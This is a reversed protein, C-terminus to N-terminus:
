DRPSPSTYLLCFTPLVIEKPNIKSLANEIEEVTEARGTRFEGTSLDLFALGITQLADPSRKFDWHLAAVYNNEKPSLLDPEILTGPTIIRQVERKVVGKATAPDEVQECIAVSHGAKILKNIYTPGAHFPIGCLPIANEKNKDRSTLTIELIKSAFIADDHFMEYFDGVRFFLIANPHQKKLEWYQKMMPTTETAM